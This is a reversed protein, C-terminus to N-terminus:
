FELNRLAKAGRYLGYAGLGAAGVGLVKNRTNHEKIREKLGKNKALLRSYATKRAGKSKSAM